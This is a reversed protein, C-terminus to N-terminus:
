NGNKLIRKAVNVVHIKTLEEATGANKQELEKLIKKHEELAAFSNEQLTESLILFRQVLTNITKIMEFLLDNDAYSALSIHFEFDKQVYLNYDETKIALEQESLIEELKKVQKENINKATYRAALPELAIRIPFVKEIDEKSIDSVVANKGTNLIILREFALEKLAVRVPTRSIGLEEALAEESLIERPKFRNTLIANKIALYAQEALTKDNGIKPLKGM